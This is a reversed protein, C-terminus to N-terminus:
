LAAQAQCFNKVLHDLHVENVAIHALGRTISTLSESFGDDVPGAEDFVEDLWRQHAVVVEKVTRRSDLSVVVAVHDPRFGADVAEIEGILTKLRELGQEIRESLERTM